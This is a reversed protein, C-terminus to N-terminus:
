AGVRRVTDLAESIVGFADLVAGYEPDDVPGIDGTWDLRREVDQRVLFCWDVAAEDCAAELLRVVEAYADERHSM